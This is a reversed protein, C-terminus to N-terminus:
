VSVEELQRLLREIRQRVADRETRLQALDEEVRALRASQEEMRDTLEAAQREASARLERELKLLEVARVIREELAQFDDAEAASIPPHDNALTSVAAEDCLCPIAKKLLTYRSM